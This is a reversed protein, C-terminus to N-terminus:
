VGVRAYPCMRTYGCVYMYLYVCVYMSYAYMGVSVYM